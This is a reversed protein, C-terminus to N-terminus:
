FAEPKLGFKVCLSQLDVMEQRLCKLPPADKPNEAYIELAKAFNATAKKACRKDLLLKPNTAHLRYLSSLQRYYDGNSPELLLIRKWLSEAKRLSSMKFFHAANVLVQLNEPNSRLAKRWRRSVLDFWPTGSSITVYQLDITAPENDILWLLHGIYKESNLANRPQEWVSRQYYGALLLRALYSDPNGDLIRELNKVESRELGAGAAYDLTQWSRRSWEPICAKRKSM